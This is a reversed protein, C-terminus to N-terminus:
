SLLTSVASPHPWGPIPKFKQCPFLYWVSAMPWTALQLPKLETGAAAWHWTFFCVPRKTKKERGTKINHLTNLGKNLYLKNESIGSTWIRNWSSSIHMFSDWLHAWNPLRMSPTGNWRDADFTWEAQCGLLWDHLRLPQPPLQETYCTLIQQFM